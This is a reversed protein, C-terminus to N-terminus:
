WIKEKHPELINYLDASHGKGTLRMVFIQKFQEDGYKIYFFIPNESSDNHKINLVFKPEFKNVELILSKPEDPKINSNAPLHSIFVFPTKLITMFIYRVLNNM